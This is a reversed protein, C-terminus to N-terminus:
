VNLNISCKVRDPNISRDASVLLKDLTLTLQNFLNGSGRLEVRKFVHKKLMDMAVFYEHMVQRAPKGAEIVAIKQNRIFVKAFQAPGLQENVGLM